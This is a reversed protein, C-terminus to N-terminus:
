KQKKDQGSHDKYFIDSMEQFYPDNTIKYLMNLQKIHLRHYMNSCTNKHKLDYFSKNGPNRYKPLYHEVTQLAQNLHNEGKKTISYYDYLGLSATIFGNLVNRPHSDIPYEEIWFYGRDDIYTLWPAEKKQERLVTLTEFTNDAYELYKKEKTVDYLLIFLSLVRGQAMGSFWPAKMEGQDKGQFKFDFVYPYYPINNYFIAEQIIRDAKIRALNLYKKEKTNKYANILRLGWWGILVPHYYNKDKYPFLIVGDTDTKITSLDKDVKEVRIKTLYFSNVNQINYTKNLTHNQEPSIKYKDYYITPKIKKRIYDRASVPITSILANKLSM